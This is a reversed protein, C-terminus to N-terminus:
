LTEKQSAAIVDTIQASFHADAQLTARADSISLAASAIAGLAAADRLQTQRSTYATNSFAAHYLWYLKKFTESVNLLAESVEKLPDPQPTKQIPTTM